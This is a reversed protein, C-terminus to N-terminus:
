SKAFCAPRKELFPRMGEQGQRSVRPADAVNEQHAYSPMGRLWTLDTGVCSGAGAGAPVLAGTEANSGAHAVAATLEDIMAPNFANREQPRNLTIWTASGRQTEELNQYARM